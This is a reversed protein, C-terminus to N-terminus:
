RANGERDIYKKLWEQLEEQTDPYIIRDNAVDFDTMRVSWPIIAIPPTNTKNMEKSYDTAGIDYGTTAIVDLKQSVLNNILALNTTGYDRKVSPYLIAEIQFNDPGKQLLGSSFFGSFLYERPSDRPVVKVFEETIFKIISDFMEGQHPHIQNMEKIYHEFIKKSEQNAKVIDPHNFIGHIVIEQGDKSKWESVTVHEGPQPQTEWLITNFDLSAYFVSEGPLNCRNFNSISAPPGTLQSIKEIRGGGKRINKNFSVRYLNPFSAKTFAAFQINFFTKIEQTLLEFENDPLKSLGAKSLRRFYDLKEKVSELTNFLHRHPDIVIQKILKDNKSQCHV